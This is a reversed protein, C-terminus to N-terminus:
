FSESKDDDKWPFNITFLTEKLAKEKTDEGDLLGQFNWKKNLSIKDNDDKNSITKLCTEREALSKASEKALCLTSLDDDSIATVRYDTKINRKEKNIKPAAGETYSKYVQQREKPTPCDEKNGKTIKNEKLNIM